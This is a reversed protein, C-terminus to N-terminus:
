KDTPRGARKRTRLEFDKGISEPLQMLATVHDTGAKVLKKVSENANRKGGSFEMLENTLERNYSAVREVIESWVRAAAGLLEIQLATGERILQMVEDAQDRDGGRGAGGPQAARDRRASSARRKSAM